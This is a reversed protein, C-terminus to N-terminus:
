LHLHSIASSFVFTACVEKSDDSVITVRKKAIWTVCFQQTLCKPIRHLSMGHLNISKNQKRVMEM